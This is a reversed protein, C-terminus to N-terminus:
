SRMDKVPLATFFNRALEINVKKFRSGLIGYHRIRVFGSPLVHLLFRRMFEIVDLVM